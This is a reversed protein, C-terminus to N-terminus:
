AFDSVSPPDTRREPDAPSMIGVALPGPGIVVAFRSGWFADFPARLVEAGLERARDCTADVAERDETRLNVVVGVFDSSLGGWWAAFAPSDIDADFGATKVPVAIHHDAWDSWEGTIEPVEAGLDRLFQAADAVNPVVINIQDFELGAM